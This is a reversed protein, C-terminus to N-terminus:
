ALYKSPKIRLDKLILYNVLFSLHSIPQYEHVLNLHDM